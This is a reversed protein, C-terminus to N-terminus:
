QVPAAPGTVTPRWTRLSLLFITVALGVGALLIRVWLQGTALWITLGLGVWVLLIGLVKARLPVARERWWHQLFPGLRPHHLLWHHLRRSGRAYCAAAVLLFPTTPLLPLFVGAVGLALAVSGLGVFLWRAPGTVPRPLPREM